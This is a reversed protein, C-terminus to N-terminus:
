VESAASSLTLSAVAATTILGSFLFSFSIPSQAIQDRLSGIGFLVELLQRRKTPVVDKQDTYAIKIVWLTKLTSTTFKATLSAVITIGIVYFSHAMISVTGLKRVRVEVPIILVLIVITALQIIAASAVTVLSYERPIKLVKDDATETQEETKSRENGNKSKHFDVHLHSSNSQSSKEEERFRENNSSLSASPDDNWEVNDSTAITSTQSQEQTFNRDFTGLKQWRDM